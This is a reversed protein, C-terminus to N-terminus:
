EQFNWHVIVMSIPQEIGLKHSATIMRFPPFCLLLAAMHITKNVFFVHTKKRERVDMVNWLMGYSDM